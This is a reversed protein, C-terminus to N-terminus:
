DNTDILLSSIRQTSLIEILSEVMEKHSHRTQKSQM